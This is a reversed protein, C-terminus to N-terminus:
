AAAFRKMYLSRGHRGLLRQVVVSALAAAEKPNKTVAYAQEFAASVVDGVSLADQKDGSGNSSRNISSPSASSRSRKGKSVVNKM